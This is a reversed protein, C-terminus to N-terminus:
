GPPPQPSSSHFTSRVKVFAPRSTLKAPYSSIGPCAFTYENSWLTIKILRQCLAKRPTAHLPSHPRRRGDSEPPIILIRGHQDRLIVAINTHLRDVEIKHAKIPKNALSIPKDTTTTLRDVDSECWTRIFAFVTLRIGAVATSAYRVHSVSRPSSPPQTTNYLRSTQLLRTPALM